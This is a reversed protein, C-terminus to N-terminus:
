QLSLPKIEGNSQKVGLRIPRPPGKTPVTVEAWLEEGKRLQAPAFAHEPIFFDVFGELFTTVKGSSDREWEAHLGSKEDHMAILHGNEVELKVQETQSEYVYTRKAEGHRSQKESCPLNENEAESSKDEVLPPTTFVGPAEVELRMSLYRGRIPLNPDYNTTKVWVRPRTAREYSYKAALSSVLALHVLVVIMGNVRASKGIM